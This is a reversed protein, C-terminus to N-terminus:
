CSMRLRLRWMRAIFGRRWMYWLDGAARRPPWRRRWRRFIGQGMRRWWSTRRRLGRRCCNGTVPGLGRRSGEAMTQPEYGEPSPPKNVSLGDSILKSVNNATLSYGFASVGLEEFGTRCTELATLAASLWTQADVPSCRDATRNLRTIIQDYLDVCDTWATKEKANRCKPGLSLANKHASVARELATQVLIEFFHSKNVIPSKNTLAKTKLFEECPAPYPTQSCWRKIEKESYCFIETPILLVILVVVFTTSHRGM